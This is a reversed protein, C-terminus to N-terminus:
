QNPLNPYMTGALSKSAAAPKSGGVPGGETLARAMRYLSRIVAPNNSAGTFKLADRLGPDAFSPNDLLKAVSTRVQPLNTGGVEPDAMVEDRWKTQTEAWVKYPSKLAELYKPGVSDVLAQAAEQSLGKASAAELFSAVTPDDKSVGEPLKFEGYKITEAKDVAEGAAKSDPADIIHDKVTLGDDAPAGAPASAAAAAAGSPPPASPAAAPAPAAPAAPAAAAPAPADAM